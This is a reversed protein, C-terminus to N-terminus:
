NNQKGYEEIIIYFEKVTIQKWDLRYGIWKSLVILSKEISFDEGGEITLSVSKIKEKEIDILTILTRDGTELYRCELISKEKILNMLNKREKPVGKFSIFEEYVVEFMSENDKTEKLEKHIYKLDGSLCKHWNYLPMEDISEWFEGQM